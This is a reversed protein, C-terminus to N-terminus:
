VVSGGLEKLIPSTHTTRHYQMILRAAANPVKQLKAILYQNIGYIYHTATICSQFLWQMFWQCIKWISRMCHYCVKCVSARSSMDLYQDMIVGLNRATNLRLITDGGLLFSNIKLHKLQHRTGFIIFETKEENLKLKNQKMWEGIGNQLLNIVISQDSPTGGPISTILQSDDAYGLLSGQPVCCELLQPSCERSNVIVKQTRDHLCSQVM